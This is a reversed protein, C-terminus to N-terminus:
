KESIVPAKGWMAPDNLSDLLFAAVTARSIMMAPKPQNGYSHIIKGKPPKNSLGMARAQTWNLGSARLATDVKNHDDYAQKMNTKNILFRMFGPADAFSDGVGGASLTAISTIGRSKMAAMANNISVEMLNVPSTPKAWPMDSTRGNNLTSVVADAGEIARNIDDANMPNGKFVTLLDHTITVKTPDRVLANVGIGRSLALKVVEIGTRGNGGLLLIRKTM